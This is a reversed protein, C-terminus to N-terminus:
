MPNKPYSLGHVWKICRLLNTNLSVKRNKGNHPPSRKLKAKLSKSSSRPSTATARRSRTLKFDNKTVRTSRRLEVVSLNVTLEASSESTSVSDDEELTNDGIQHQHSSLSENWGAATPPVRTGNVTLYPIHAPSSEGSTLPFFQSGYRDEQFKVDNRFFFLHDKPDYFRFAERDECYGIFIAPRSQPELKGRKPAPVGM